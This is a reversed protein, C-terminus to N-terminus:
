LLEAKGIITQIDSFRTITITGTLGANAKPFMSGFITIELVILFNVGFMGTVDVAVKFGLNEKKMETIMDVKVKSRPPVTLTVTVSSTKLM